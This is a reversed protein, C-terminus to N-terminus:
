KGSEKFSAKQPEAPPSPEAKPETKKEAAKEEVKKPDAAPEPKPDAPPAAKPAMEKLKELVYDFRWAEPVGSLGHLVNGREDLLLTILPSFTKASARSGEDEEWDGQGEAPTELEKARSWLLSVIGRYLERGAVAWPFSIGLEQVYERTQELRTPDNTFNQYFLVGMSITDGAQKEVRRLLPVLKLFGDHHVETIVVLMPRGPAWFPKGDQALGELLPKSETRPLKLAKDVQERFDKKIRTDLEIRLPEVIAKFEPSERLEQFAEAAEMAVVNKYGLSVAEKLKKMAEVKQGDQGALLAQYWYGYAELSKDGSAIALLSLRNLPEWRGTKQQRYMQLKVRAPGWVQGDWNVTVGGAAEKPAEKGAKKKKALGSATTKGTKEPAPEQEQARSLTTGLLGCSLALAATLLLPRDFPSM